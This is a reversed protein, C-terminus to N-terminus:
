ERSSSRTRASGPTSDAAVPVPTSMGSSALEPIM